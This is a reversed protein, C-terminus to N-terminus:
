LLRSGKESIEYLEDYNAEIKPTVEITKVEVIKKYIVYPLLWCSIGPIAFLITLVIQSSDISFVSGALFACGILGVTLSAIRGLVMKSRELQIIDRVVSDFKRQLRTLEAKNRIKRDRRFRLIVKSTGYEKKSALEWGLNAYGDEYLPAYREASEIELYELGIFIKKVNEM